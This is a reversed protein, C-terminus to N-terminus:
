DAKTIEQLDLADFRGWIGGGWHIGPEIWGAARHDRRKKDKRFSEAGAIERKIHRRATLATM